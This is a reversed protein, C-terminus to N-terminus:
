RADAAAGAGLTFFFTAGDDPVGFAWMRGGHREIIRKSGALGLGTGTFGDAQHLRGYPTFLRGEAARMDFGVGNDRVYYCTQEADAAVGVEITPRDRTSSFKLANTLLNELVRRLLARDAEVDINPRVTCVARPASPALETWIEAALASLSFRALDLETRRTRAHELLTSLREMMRDAASGVQTLFLRGMENLHEGQTRELMETAGSIVQLPNRLDHTLSASFTELERYAQELEEVRKRVIHMQQGFARADGESRDREAGQKHLAIEVACRLETPTAPKVVYGGPEALKARELTEVDSYATLFVIACGSEARIQRAAETGDMDGELHVDMLVLDPCLERAKEIADAGTAALGVVRYGFTRLQVALDAAVLRQDEVVLVTKGSPGDVKTPQSQM